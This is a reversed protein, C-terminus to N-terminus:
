RYIPPHPAPPLRERRDDAVATVLASAQLRARAADCATADPCDLTLAFRRPAVGAVDRVPTRAAEAAARRLAALDAWDAATTVQLRLSVSSAAACAALLM